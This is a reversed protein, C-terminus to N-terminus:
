RGREALQERIIRQRQQELPEAYLDIGQTQENSNSRIMPPAAARERASSKNVLTQNQEDANMPKYVGRQVLALHGGEMLAAAQEPNALSIHDLNVQYKEEVYKVLADNAEPTDPFEPHASQFLLVADRRQTRSFAKNHTSLLGPVAKLEEPTVGFVRSMKEAFDEDPIVRAVYKGVSIDEATNQVAPKPQNAKLEALERELEEKKQKETQYARKTNQQSDITSQLIVEPTGTFKEGLEGEVLFSGDALKEVKNQM